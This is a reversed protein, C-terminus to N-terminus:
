TTGGRALNSCRRCIINREKEVMCETCKGFCKSLNTQKDVFVKSSVIAGFPLFTQHLDTDSFEPPLHYIFLNAGEPGEHAKLTSGSTATPTTPTLTSSPTSPSDIKQSM